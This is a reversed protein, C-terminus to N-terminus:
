FHQKWQIVSLDAFKQVMMAIRNILALRNNRIDTDKAMVMNEDFFVHIPEALSAISEMCSEADKNQDAQNFSDYAEKYAYLLNEESDTEFLAPDVNTGDAKEALHLVRLLAEQVTKFASNQRKASLIEAKEIAYKPSGIHHHLVADIIDPEIKLERLIYSARLKFFSEIEKTLGESKMGDLGLEQYMKVTLALLDEVDIDWKRDVLINLIGLAKRRLGYPDQSGTPILGVGICGVITDLKDCIGVLAGVDTEPLHGNAQVPLYHERIARSVIKDEGYHLAYTEGIIGQLETFENVMDTTLDFKCISAARLARNITDNHFDLTHALDDVLTSVRNAKDKMTGLKDQFVVYELKTQYHDLPHKQDEEYFFRADELRADLVKENGRIVTEISTDDGNRVGIFYSALQGNSDEVPFYRQHEIMSATLVEKPLLLFDDKFRGSFVTPYEVLNCVENLLDQNPIVHLNETMEFQEIGELIMSQRKAASPIVYQETLKHSYEDPKHITIEEGLFRHGYTKNSTNIGAIEFPIIETDYLAVLWRIPRVYRMTENGWRMTKPFSLDEIVNQFSPLLEYTNKGTINKTVFIYPVNNVEKTYVADLSLGQGKTFGIAAKTWNGDADQAIKLQPGRIEESLESQKEAIDEILIALRRPTSFSLVDSYSIRLDNLWQITLDKLMMESDDIFRAPLEEMGIEFLVNHKM